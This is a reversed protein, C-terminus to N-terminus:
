NVNFFEHANIIESIPIRKKYHVRKILTWKDIGAHLMRGDANHEISSYGITKDYVGLQNIIAGGSPLLKTVIWYNKSCACIFQDGLKYKFRKTKTINTDM